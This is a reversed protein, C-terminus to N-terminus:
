HPIIVLERYCLSRIRPMQKFVILTIYLIYLFIYDQTLNLQTLYNRLKISQQRPTIKSYQERIIHLTIIRTTWGSFYPMKIPEQATSNLSFRQQSVSHLIFYRFTLFVRNSISDSLSFSHSLLSAKQLLMFLTKNKKKTYGM